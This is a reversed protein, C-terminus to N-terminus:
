SNSKKTIFCADNLVWIATNEMPLTKQWSYFQKMMQSSDSSFGLLRWILLSLWIGHTFCVTRNEAQKAFALFADIRRNFLVFSDVQPSLQLTPEAQQWFQQSFPRRQEANLSQITEFPLYSFENLCALPEASLGHYQLYPAATQQTRLFESTFVQHPKPLRHILAQAQQKGKESLPINRDPLSEGGANALSEAHRILYLQKM